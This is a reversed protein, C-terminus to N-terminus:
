KKLSINKEIPHAQTFRITVQDPSLYQNVILEIFDDTYEQFINKKSLGEIQVM